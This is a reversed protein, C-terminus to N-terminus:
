HDVPVEVCKQAVSMVPNGETSLPLGQRLRLNTAICKEPLSSITNKLMTDCSVFKNKHMYPM